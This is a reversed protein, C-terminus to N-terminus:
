LKTSSQAAREFLTNKYSIIWLFEILIVIWFRTTHFMGPVPGQLFVLQGEGLYM